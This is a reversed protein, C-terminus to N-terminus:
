PNEDGDGADISAMVAALDVKAQDIEWECVYADEESGDSQPVKALQPHDDTVDYDIAVIRVGAFAAPQDSIVDSILGGDLVIGLVPPDLPELAAHIAGIADCRGTPGLPTGHNMRDIMVGNGIFDGLLSLWPLAGRLAADKTVTNVPLTPKDVTLLPSHLALKARERWGGFWDVLDGGNVSCEDGKYPNVDFQPWANVADRLAEDQALLHAFIRVMAPLQEPTDKLARGVSAVDAILQDSMPHKTTIKAM